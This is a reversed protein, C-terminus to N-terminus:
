VRLPEALSPPMSSRGEAASAGDRHLLLLSLLEKLERESQTVINALRAAPAGLQRNPSDSALQRWLDQLSSELFARDTMDDVLFVVRNLDVRNLLHALEYLCGKNAATFSRLDMLVASSTAALREMTQQWTDQRCFFENIRYRGDPDPARDMSAMRRELDQAGSVFRRGLRGALFDLFEHPEVTATALDPGAILTISGAYPWHKRLRDFLRESRKGLAFVRLLLLVPAVHADRQAAMTRLGILTTLKYGTFAVLGTLVWLSGEFVFSISHVVAFVLWLADLLLSQDSVKKLEYRRGLYKMLPWGLLGFVTIGCLIMGIFVFRANLGLSFGFGVMSRLLREDSAALSLLSQSGIALILMFVLVLPGVARIPRLLFALMLVTPPANSIVWYVVLSIVTLDPNRAVAVMFIGFLVGFYAGFLQLRRKKDYCAIVVAAIVAPWFYTWLILSVKTFVINPDRTAKLWGVTMIVAFVLGAVAYVAATKGPRGTAAEYDASSETSRDAAATLALTRVELSETPAAATAKAAPDAPTAGALTSMGKNVSRRYLALLAFSVPVALLAALIVVFPLLGTLLNRASVDAELGKDV